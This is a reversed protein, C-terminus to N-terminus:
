KKLGNVITALVAALGLLSTIFWFVTEVRNVHKKIPAVEKELLETRKIHTKLEQNYVAFHVDMNGLRQEIKDLKDYIKDM